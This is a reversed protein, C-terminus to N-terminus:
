IYTNSTFTIHVSIFTFHLARKLSGQSLTRSQASSFPDTQMAEQKLVLRNVPERTMRPQSDPSLSLAECAM